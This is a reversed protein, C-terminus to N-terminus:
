SMMTILREPKRYVNGHVRASLHCEENINGHSITQTTLSPRYITTTCYLGVLISNYSFKKAHTLQVNLSNIEHKRRLVEANLTEAHSAQKRQVM